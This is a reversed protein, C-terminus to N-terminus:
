KVIEKPKFDLIRYHGDRALGTVFQVMQGDYDIFGTHIHGALTIIGPTKKLLKCFAMTEPTHGDKSWRERQELKFSTDMAAGWAPNGMSLNYYENFGCYIPIHVNLVIPLGKKIQKKFFKLQKKNIQYTSNDINVFNIGKYIISNYMPNEGKYLASLVPYYNRRREEDSGESGELHWDHNGSIFVYNIGSDELTKYVFEVTKSSPFNIIDGGLVIMDVKKKKATEILDKFAEPRSINKGSVHSGTNKYAQHMRGCKGWILKDSEDEITIHSDTIHMVRCQTKVNTLVEVYNKKVRISNQVSQGLLANSFLLSLLLGLPILKLKM